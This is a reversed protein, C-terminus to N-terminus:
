FRLGVAFRMTRGGQTGGTFALPYTQIGTSYLNTVTNGTATGFTAGRNYTTGLGLNDVSSFNQTVTTNWAILKKNDFLNYVDFKLYPRLTRFVPIDYNISTDFAGYGAFEESGREDFFVMNGGNSTSSPLDVYGASQLIQRQRATIAQNRAALSFVRASEVRWLGSISATGARGMNWNYISWLRLRSRQFDQLRGDPYNRTANFAEPYNGIFSTNGPLNSGEGEYNGSNELQLTYHGAFDWNSKIRYRGQFVMSQYARHTLDTNDYVTNTFRGAPIGNVVVLTSGDSLRQFDEVMASTTRGVYTVEAYGKNGLMTAGYSLSFEHVLASQTGDEM